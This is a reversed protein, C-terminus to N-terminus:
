EREDSGGPGVDTPQKSDGRHKSRKGGESMGLVVGIVILVLMGVAIMVGYESVLETIQETLGPDTEM